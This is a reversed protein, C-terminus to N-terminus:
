PRYHYDYSKLINGDQDKINQLRQFGDYEYYTPMSRGDASSTVGVLPTYTYTVMQSNLPYLRLEDINGTGSLTLSTVGTVRHEHYYWGKTILGNVPYGSITGAITLPTASKTWYSVIYTTAATLGSKSIAGGSLNYSKYGTIAATVSDRQASGITWNGNGDAEFSTYAISLTDANKVEAIPYISRYDWIYSTQPGSIVSQSLLQGYSNYGNFIVRDEAANTGQKVNYIHPLVLGSPYVMYNIKTTSVESAGRTAHQSLVPSINYQSILAQRATEEPGTLAVDQPYAMTTVNLNGDSTTTTSTTLLAHSVNGYESTNIDELYSTGASNYTWTRVTDVYMWKRFHSYTAIDYAAYQDPYPTPTSTCTPSYKKNVMYSVFESSIRSDERYHTFVKKLPISATGNMKFQCSYIEKGNKWSYSTLPASTIPDGIISQGPIDPALQFHHETGGNAFSAGDSEIVSSYYVPTPYYYLNTQSNSYMAFYDYEAQACVAFGPDAGSNSESRQFVPFNKEFHPAFVVSGSSQSPNSSNYYYYEKLHPNGDTASSKTIIKGIRLGAVVGNLYQVPPINSDPYTLSAYAKAAAGYPTISMQYAHGGKLSIEVSSISQGVQLTQSFVSANATLDFVSIVCKNHLADLAYGSSPNYDCSATLSGTVPQPINFSSSTQTNPVRDEIGIGTLYVNDNPTPPQYAQYTTNPEYVLTDSGGTPYSVKSLLGKASYDPYYGRDATASNFYPKWSDYSPPPILTSNTHGNFYGYADQAYSLRAPLQDLGNYAFSHVKVDSTQPNGETVKLLFPRNCLSTDQVSYSNNFATSHVNQYSFNIFRFLGSQGPRYIEIRSLLKDGNDPRNVYIMTVKGGASSSIQDLIVTNTQLWSMCSSNTLNPPQNSLGSQVNQGVLSSYMIENVGTQFNYGVPLYSLSIIDNDTHIIKTLYWATAAFSPYSKGCNSQYKNTTETASAGGFFYQVGDSTTIKFNWDTGNFNKEIKMAAHNLLVPNMGNDLIFQGSYGNFNFSFVDPQADNYDADNVAEVFDILNQTRQPFDAPPLVRTSNEDAAGMVTRTIAGGANLAWSMGVRSAIEDVKFGNSSYNISIPLNLHNAKYEYLSVNINAMGSALGVDLGGYKGLSSSNPSPPLVETIKTFGSLNGPTQGQAQSFRAQLLVFCFFCYRFIRQWTLIQQKM